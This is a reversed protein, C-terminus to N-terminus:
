EKVSSAVVSRIFQRQLLIFLIVMPLVIIITFAYQLAFNGAFKQQLEALAMTLPQLAPDTIIVLPWLFANYAFVFALIVNTALAPKSLPWYIGFLIYLESAGDLRASEIVSQPVADFSNYLILMNIITTALPLAVGIRTNLLGLQKTVLFGPIITAQFPIMMAAILFTFAYSRGEFDMTLAYAAFSNILLNGVIVISVIFISNWFFQVIDIRYFVDVFNYFTPNSIVFSPAGGILNGPPWQLSIKVLWYMPFLFLLAMVAAFGFLVVQRVRDHYKWEETLPLKGVVAKIDAASLFGNTRSM